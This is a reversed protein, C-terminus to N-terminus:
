EGACALFAGEFERRGDCFGALLWAGRKEGPQLRPLVGQDALSHLGGGLPCNFPELAVLYERGWLPYGGEGRSVEWEWLYPFAGADWSLGFGIGAEPNRLACHAPGSLRIEFNDSTGGSEPPARRLDILGGKAGALVLADATQGQEFRPRLHAGPARTSVKGKPLDLVCAPTLFPPGFAPHHGWAFEMPQGALNEVMEDFRVSGEGHALTMIRRLRFPLRRCEVELAVSIREATDDLITYDWPQVSVEGHVTLNAGRYTGFTNGTPFSEQWGGAFFDFFTDRATATEPVHDSLAPLARQSHWLVDLDSPKHRFEVIDAGKSLLLSVRLLSNELTLVRHGRQTYEGIRCGHHRSRPTM